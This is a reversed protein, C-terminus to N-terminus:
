NLKVFPTNIKNGAADTIEVTHFGNELGSVDIATGSVYNNRSLCVGSLINRITIRYTQDEQRATNTIIIKIYTSAPNPAVTANFSPHQQVSASKSIFAPRTAFDTNLNLKTFASLTGTTGNLPIQQTGITYPADVEFSLYIDDGNYAYISNYYPPYSAQIKRSTMDSLDVSYFYNDTTNMVLVRNETYPNNSFTGSNFNSGISSNNFGTASVITYSGASGSYDLEALQNNYVVYVKDNDTV